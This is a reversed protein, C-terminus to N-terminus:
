IMVYFLMDYCIMVYCLLVYCSLDHFFEVCSLLVLVILLWYCTVVVLFLYCTASSLLQFYVCHIHIGRSRLRENPKLVRKVVEGGELGGKKANAIEEKAYEDEDAKGESVSNQSRNNAVTVVVM